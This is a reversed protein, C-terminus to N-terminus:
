GIPILVENHRLPSPIFPSNYFGHEVPGMAVMGRKNLWRRLSEEKATLQADDGRGGFRIAAVRRAPISVITVDEPPNPLSARTFKAPMLFRTRWGGGNPAPDALVPATMAIKAAENAARSASSATGAVVEPGRSRAFIYDALLGCGAELAAERNGPRITEAALLAPYDRVEIDSDEEILRYKPRETLRERAYWAAAGAGALAVGAGLWKWIPNVRADAM